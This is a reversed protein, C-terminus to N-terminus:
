ALALGRDAANKLWSNYAPPDPNINRVIQAFRGRRGTGYNQVAASTMCIRGALIEASRHQRMAEAFHPMRAPDTAVDYRLGDVVVLLLHRTLAPMATPPALPPPPAPRLILVFTGYVVGLVYVAGLLLAVL